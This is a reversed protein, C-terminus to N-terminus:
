HIRCKYGGKILASGDERGLGCYDIGLAKVDNPEILNHDVIDAYTKVLVRITLSVDAVRNILPCQVGIVASNYRTMMWHRWFYWRIRWIM